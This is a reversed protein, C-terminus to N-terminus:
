LWKMLGLEFPHCLLPHRPFARLKYAILGALYPKLSLEYRAVGSEEGIVQLPERAVIRFDDGGASEGILCEVGVDEAILGNLRVGVQVKLTEGADLRPPAPDVRTLEVGPWAARVERKWDALQTAAAGDNAGLRRRVALSPLYFNGIYDMLMRHAGFRPIISKMAEKAMTVWRKSYGHARDFYIPIVEHEITDLMEKAELWRRRGPDTESTHPQVGWGNEGNWGEAWWGDLISLNLVGNVGAKMGSTGSAEFPYEPANVWVDVGAVLTRALALDYDEVLILRGLFDPHRALEHISQILDKGPEDSPHARGAFVLCVPRNADNLLRRLRERDDLLLTARKYTAFRRAFGLVLIDDSTRLWETELDIQAKSYGFRKCRREINACIASIVEQKLGQHVSWFTSDSLGDIHDRWYDANLLQNRWAADDLANIWPRGLFTPVHVGNTVYGMPNDSVPVEPWIHAEMHAATDGHVQSVGNHFRSCRLAFTTLNFADGHANRGLVFFEESGVGLARVFPMLEQQFLGFEFIEHGAPVPTHTTFVTSAAIREIAAGFSFGSAVLERAREVVLLSPHGENLHWVTPALGLARLARVGGIGLVIEQRLRTPKDAIYLQHTIGRLEPPNEACDTDLLYLDIHGAKVRWVRVRLLGGALDLDIVLDRGDAGRAASLPLDDIDFGTHRTQQRGARDVIQTVHGQRYLLGVAVFPLGIDSAAKCFDGALIGLGGSYIPLSEHLGFEACFYAVQDTRPDCRAALGVRTHENLYTDYIALARNYSEVFTRDSAAEDLRHQAVRRLFLRPNHHCAEWLVPDLDRFLGRAYRDWSYYLDTALESLRSLRAPLRPNIELTYRTGAKSDIFQGRDNTTM